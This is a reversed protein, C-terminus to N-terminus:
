KYYKTIHIHYKNLLYSLLCANFKLTVWKSPREAWFYMWTLFPFHDKQIVIVPRNNNFASSDDRYLWRRGLNLRSVRQVGACPVNRFEASQGLRTCVFEAYCWYRFFFHVVPPSVFFLGSKGEILHKSNNAFLLVGEERGGPYYWRIVILLITSPAPTSILPTTTSRLEINFQANLLEGLDVIDM